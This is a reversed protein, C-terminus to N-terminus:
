FLDLIEKSGGPDVINDEEPVDSGTPSRYLVVAPNETDSWAHSFRPPHAATSALVGSSCGLFSM